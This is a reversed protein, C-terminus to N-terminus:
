YLVKVIELTQKESVSMNYVKKDLDIEFGYKDCIAKVDSRIKKLNYKAGKELILAINQLATLTDEVLILPKGTAINKSTLSIIAGKTFAEVIFDHGDFNEGILPIYLSNLEINRSDTCFNKISINTDINGILKGNTATLIDNITM